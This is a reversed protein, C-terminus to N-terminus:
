DRPHCVTENDVYCSSGPSCPAEPISTQCQKRFGDVRDFNIKPTLSIEGNRTWYRCEKEVLCTNEGYGHGGTASGNSGSAIVGNMFANSRIGYDNLANHFNAALLMFLLLAGTMVKKNTRM